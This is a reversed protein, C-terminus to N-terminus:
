AHYKIESTSTKIHKIRECTFMMKLVFVPVIINTINIFVSVIVIGALTLFFKRMGPAHTYESVMVLIARFTNM